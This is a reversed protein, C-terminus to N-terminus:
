RVSIGLAALVLGWVFCIPLTIVLKAWGLDPLAVNVIGAFILIPVILLLWSQLKTLKM